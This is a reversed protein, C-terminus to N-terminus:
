TIRVNSTKNFEKNMTMLKFFSLFHCPVSKANFIQCDNLEYIFEERKITNYVGKYVTLLIRILLFTLFNQLRMTGSVCAQQLCTESVGQLRNRKLLCSVQMVAGPEMASPVSM